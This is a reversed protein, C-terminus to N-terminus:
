LVVPMSDLSVAQSIVTVSRSDRLVPLSGPTVV